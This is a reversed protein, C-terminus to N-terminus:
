LKKRFWKNLEDNLKEIREKMEDASCNESSCKKEVCDIETQFAEREGIIQEKRKPRLLTGDAKGKCVNPNLKRAQEIHKEEHARMCDVICPPTGPPINKGLDVRMGGKGDCVVTPISGDNKGYARILGFYDLDNVPDASVFAYLNGEGVEGLPDRNPWRQLNPDYFRYLYYILGSNVHAEKSSFRYRNAEAMQGNMALVSGFPDYLYKGVVIQKQDQLATINGNGDAHYFVHTQLAMDSRALLGGIGGAGQLSGSLDRGRTYSVLPQNGGDREQVVLNGDYVYRSENTQVWKSSVWQYEKTVRRRLKGDYLFDSRWKNTEYVQTLQNEDDYILIRKGDSLMNGNGDYSYSPASPLNVTIAQTDQRGLNDKGIATFTNDGNVLSFGSKAFSSDTYLTAALSNVTVNTSPTTTTGAVTLTGSRSGSTLQNLNNVNFTQILADNTRRNLNGASDYFYGFRENVRNTTGGSEKGFAAILQGSADYSYDVFNGETRTQKTRRNVDDYSYVHSNLITASGNKLYTGTLRGLTDFTNSISSGNPLGIQKVMQLCTPDYLYSFAGAPSIASTLRNALDYGYTEEWPSASPQLLSAKSRLRNTTYSYTVTDNAWPGDESLLAGFDTYKYTTTGVSDVMNTLRNNADYQFTVTSGSPYKVLTLNRNADYAYGTDGKTISWRNTLNGEADYKYRLIETGAANTKSTVRGFSDYGWTTQQGKGDVLKILDGGGSYTYSTVEGNANTESTKRGGADYWYKTAQSLQNGYVMLGLSSYLYTEVKGNANTQGISRGLSDFTTKTSLQNADLVEIPKNELDFTICKIRGSANSAVCFLGQNNYCNTVNNGASDGVRVVQGMANYFNTVSGGAPFAVATRRGKLDYTYTTTKGSPDTASDLVGCNCYSYSNTCNRPDVALVKQRFGNYVFQNTGGRRDIVKALDLKSYERKESTGDSYAANTLRGLADWSNTITLGRPDRMTYVYGNTYTYSNTSAIEIQATQKLFNSWTGSTEYLNTVTLGSPGKSSVLQNNANYLYQNTQGLADFSTIIQHNGNFANSVVQRSTGGILQIHKILDIGNSDFVYQNTRVQVLGNLGTYTDVENTTHGLFNRENCSFTSEGTDLKNGGICAKGSTGEKDKAGGEKNPYDFWQILGQTTGDPSSERILSVTFSTNTSGYAKLWHQMKARSYDGSTLDTVTFSGGNLATKVTSSLDEYNRPNWYFSNRKHSDETDFTNPISFYPANTTSPVYSAYSTPVKSGDVQQYYLFFHYRLAQETVKVANMVNPTSFYTFTNTGYPTILSTLNGASYQMSSSLGVVDTLNTLQGTSNYKMTSSLGHPAIVKSILNSYNGAQVYEFTIERKDVDIVKNLKITTANTTYQFEM